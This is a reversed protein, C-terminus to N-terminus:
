NGVYSLVSYGLQVVLAVIGGIWAVKALTDSRGQERFKGQAILGLVISIIGCCFWCVIGIIAM